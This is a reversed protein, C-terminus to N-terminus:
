AHLVNQREEVPLSADEGEILLDALGRLRIRRPPPPPFIAIIEEADM